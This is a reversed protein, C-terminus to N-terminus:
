YINTTILRDTKPSFSLFAFLILRISNRIRHLFPPYLGLAPSLIELAAQIKTQKALWGTCLAAKVQGTIWLIHFPKKLATSAAL